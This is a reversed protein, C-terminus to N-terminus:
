PYLLEPEGMLMPAIVSAWNRIQTWNRFDGVPANVLKVVLQNMLNLKHPNIEGGFLGISLPQVDPVARMVPDLYHLVMDRHEPTDESMTHCVVFYAVPIERLSTRHQEVFEVAEPLWKGMRIASGVIVAEYRDVDLREHTSRVDVDLGWERLVAAVAEAIEITSGVRTAYALLIKKTM